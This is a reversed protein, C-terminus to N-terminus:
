APLCTTKELMSAFQEVLLVDLVATQMESTIILTKGIEYGAVLYDAVKKGAASAYKEDHMMGFHEWVVMTGEADFILFDPRYIKRNVSVTPEYQFHLGHKSLIFAILAESKSRVKFGLGTDVTLGETRYDQAGQTTRVTPIQFPIPVYQRYQRDDKKSKSPVGDFYWTRTKYSKPMQDLICNPHFTAYKKLLNELAVINKDLLRISKEVCWRRRLADSLQCAVTDTEHIRKEKGKLVHFIEVRYGRNRSIIRGEKLFPLEEKFKRALEKQQGLTQLLQERSIM